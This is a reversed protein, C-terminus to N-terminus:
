APTDGGTRKNSGSKTKKM